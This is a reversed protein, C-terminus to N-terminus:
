KVSKKEKKNVYEIQVKDGIPARDLLKLSMEQLFKTAYNGKSNLEELANKMREYYEEQVKTTIASAEKLHKIKEEQVTTDCLLKAQAIEQELKLNMKVREENLKLESEQKMRDIKLDYDQQQAKKALEMEQRVMHLEMKHRSESEAIKLQSAQNGIKVQQELLTVETQLEKKKGQLDVYELQAGRLKTRWEKFFM